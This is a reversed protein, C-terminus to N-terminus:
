RFALGAAVAVRTTASGALTTATAPRPTLAWFRLDLSLAVHDRLFWRAGAGYHIVTGWDAGATTAGAITSSVSALGAGLSLYSWGARHGFNMAASPALAVLRTTITPADPGTARGAALLGAAGLSLRRSRGPGLFVHAGGDVGLGRDPVLAGATPPPPTWGAGAPLGVTVLRLDVIAGALAERTQGAAPSSLGATLLM